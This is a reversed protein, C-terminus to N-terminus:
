SRRFCAASKESFYPQGTQPMESGSSSGRWKEKLEGNPAHGSTRRVRCAARPSRASMRPSGLMEIELAHHQRPAFGVAVQPLDNERRERLLELEIGVSAQPLAAPLLAAVHQQVADGPLFFPGVRVLPFANEGVDLAAVLLGIESVTRISSSSNM